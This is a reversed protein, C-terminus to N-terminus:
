TIKSKNLLGAKKLLERVLTDVATFEDPLKKRVFFVGDWGPAITPLALRVSERLLRRIRNRRVARKDVGIPVVFAFRSAPLTHQTIVLQVGETSARKGSRMVSKIEPSPLRNPKPLM